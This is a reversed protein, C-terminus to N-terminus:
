WNHIKRWEWISCVQAFILCMRDWFSKYLVKTSKYFVARASSCKHNRSFGLNSQSASNEAVLTREQKSQVMGMSNHAEVATPRWLICWAGREKKGDRDTCVWIWKICVELEADKREPREEQWKTSEAEAAASDPDTITLWRSGQGREVGVAGITMVLRIVLTLNRHSLQM